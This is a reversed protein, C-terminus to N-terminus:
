KARPWLWVWWCSPWCNFPWSNSPPELNHLSVVGWIDLRECYNKMGYTWMMWGRDWIDMVSEYCWSCLTWWMCYLYINGFFLAVPCQLDLPLLKRAVQLLFPFFFSNSMIIIFVLSHIFFNAKWYLSAWGDYFITLQVSHAALSFICPPPGVVFPLKLILSAKFRWSLSIYLFFVGDEMGGEGESERNNKLYIFFTSYNKKTSVVFEKCDLHTPYIRRCFFLVRKFFRLMKRIYDNKNDVSFDERSSFKM